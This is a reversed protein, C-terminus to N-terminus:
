GPAVGSDISASTVETRSPATACTSPTTEIEAVELKAWLRIVASNEELTSMLIAAVSTLFATELMRLSSGSSTSSGCTMLASVSEEGIMRRETPASPM